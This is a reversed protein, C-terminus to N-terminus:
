RIREYEVFVFDADDREGREGGVRSVERWLAPDIAPFRADGDPALDVETVHLRAARGITQAYIEGGGAVVIEDAGSARAAREALWLAEDVDRGVLAGAAAFRPDHTVVIMTRGQLPRGISGYTRRGMVLPKGMTVARFHKLDSSLRWPLAGGVGIVGNKAVAAILALPPASVGGGPGQDSAM